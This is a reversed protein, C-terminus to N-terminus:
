YKIKVLHHSSEYCLSIDASNIENIAARFSKLRRKNNVDLTSHPSFKISYKLEADYKNILVAIDVIVIFVDLRM